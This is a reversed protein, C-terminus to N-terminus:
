TSRMSGGGFQNWDLVKAMFVPPRPEDRAWTRFWTWLPLWEGDFQNWDLVKALEAALAESNTDVEEAEEPEKGANREKLRAAAKSRWLTAIRMVQSHMRMRMHTHM